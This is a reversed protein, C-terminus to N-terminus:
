AHCPPPRIEKTGLEIYLASSNFSPSIGDCENLLDMIHTYIEALMIPLTCSEHTVTTIPKKTWNRMDWHPPDRQNIEKYIDKDSMVIQSKPRNNARAETIIVSIRFSEDLIQAIETLKKAKKVECIERDVKGQALAQIFPNSNSSSAKPGRWGGPAGRWGGPPIKEGGPRPAEAGRWGGPPIKEGGPRIPAEPVEPEPSLPPPPIPLVTPEEPEEPEIVIPILVQKTSNRTLSRTPQM